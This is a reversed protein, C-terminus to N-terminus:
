QNQMERIFGYIGDFNCPFPNEMFDQDPITGLIEYDKDPNYAKAKLSVNTEYVHSTTLNVISLPQLYTAPLGKLDIVLFGAGIVQDRIVSPAVEDSTQFMKALKKLAAVMIPGEQAFACDNKYFPIVSSTINDQETNFVNDPRDHRVPSIYRQYHPPPKSASLLLSKQQGRNLPLRSVPNPEYISTNNGLQSLSGKATAGDRAQQRLIAQKREIERQASERAKSLDEFQNDREQSAVSDGDSGFCDSEEDDQKQIRVKKIPTKTKKTKLVKQIPVAPDKLSSLNPQSMSQSMSVLLNEFQSNKSEQAQIATSLMSSFQAILSEGLQKGAEITFAGNSSDRYILSDTDSEDDPGFSPGSDNDSDKPAAKPKPVIKPRSITPGVKADPIEVIMPISPPPGEPEKQKKKYARKEKVEVFPVEEIIEKDEQGGDEDTSLFSFLNSTKSKKIALRTSGQM